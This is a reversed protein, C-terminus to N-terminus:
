AGRGLPSRPARPEYAAEGFAVAYRPNSAVAVRTGSVVADAAASVLALVRLNRRGSFPPEPGGQLYAYWVDFFPLFPDQLPIGADIAAAQWQGRAAAVEYGMTDNSMHIGRCRLAGKTGELRLEYCDAQSSLGGQYLLHTGDRYAVMVNVMCPGRYVSWSPQFGDAIVWEPEPEGLVAAVSDFHHCSMEYLAPQELGLLRDGGTGPKPNLFNVMEVQGLAGAAVFRRVAEYHRRYRTQQAVCLTVGKAEALRVLEVGQEFETAFPKAVLVHRGAELAAKTPAYHLHSPTNVMVVPAACRELAVSLDEYRGAEPVGFEEGTARLAEEHIDVLAVTRYQPRKRWETLMDQTIGGCGVVICEITERM